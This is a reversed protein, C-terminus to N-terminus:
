PASSRQSIWEWAEQDELVGLRASRPCQFETGTAEDTVVGDALNYTRVLQPPQPTLNHAVAHLRARLIRMATVRAERASGKHPIEVRVWEGSPTHRVRVFPPTMWTLM